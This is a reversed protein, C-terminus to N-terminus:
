RMGRFDDLVQLLSRILQLKFNVLRESYLETALRVTILQTVLEFAKHHLVALDSVWQYYNADEVSLVVVCHEFLDHV